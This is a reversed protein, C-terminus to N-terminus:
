QIHYRVLRRQNYNPVSMYYQTELIKGVNNAFLQHSYRPVGYPYNPQLAYVHMEYDITQFTGAPVTVLSDKHRMFFWANYVLPVYDYKLTDVFNDQQIFEGSPNVLYGGSDYLLQLNSPTYFFQNGLGPITVIKKYTVSGILSDGAVFMSDVSGVALVNGVSDTQEHQYIWYSGTTIPLHYMTLPPSNPDVRATDLDTTEKKCSVLATACLLAIAANRNFVAQTFRKM